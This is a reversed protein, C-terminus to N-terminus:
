DIKLYLKISKDILIGETDLSHFVSVVFRLKQAEQRSMNASTALYIEYMYDRVMNEKQALHSDYAKLVLKVPVKERDNEPIKSGVTKIHAPHDELQNATDIM